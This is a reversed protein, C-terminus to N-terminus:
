RPPGTVADLRRHMVVVAGAAVRRVLQARQEALEAPALDDRELGAVRQVARVLLQGEAGGLLGLGVQQDMRDDAQGLRAVDVVEGPHAAVLRHEVLIGAAVVVSDSSLRAIRMAPGRSATQCPRIRLFWPTVWKM